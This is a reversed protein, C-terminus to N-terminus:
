PLGGVPVNWPNKNLVGQEGQGGVWKLMELGMEQVVVDGGAQMKGRVDGGGNVYVDLISECAVIREQLDRLEEPLASPYRAVDLTLLAALSRVLPAVAQQPINSRVKQLYYYATLEARDARVDQGAARRRARAAFIEALAQTTDGVFRAREYTLAQYIAQLVVGNTEAKGADKLTAITNRATAADASLDNVLAAYTAACTYRVGPDAHRLGATLADRTAVRGIQRLAMAVALAVSHDGDARFEAVAKTSFREALRQLYQPTSQAHNLEAVIAARFEQAAKIREAKDEPAAQLKGLAADIWQDM